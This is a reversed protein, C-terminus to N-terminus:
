PDFGPPPFGPQPFGPQPFRPMGAQNGAIVTLGKVIETALDTAAMDVEAPAYTRPLQIDEAAVPPDEIKVRIQVKAAVRYRGDRQQEFSYTIDFHPNAADEPVEVFILLQEGVPPPSPNIVVDAPIIIPRSLPTLAQGTRQAFGERLSKARGASGEEGGVPPKTETVRISVVAQDATRVSQLVQALGDKAPGAPPQQLAAVVPDYFTVLKESVAARHRTNRADMLYARLYRPEIPDHTVAHFIADDRLKVDVARMLFYCGMGALLIVVYPIVAPVARRAREPEEPVPDKWKRKVLGPDPNGDLDVPEDETRAVHAGLAGLDEPSLKSRTGGDPGFAFSIYNLFAVFTESADEGAIVVTRTRRGSFMLTVTTQQYKNENYAHKYKAGRFDDLSTVVVREGTAEYLNLADAYMWHGATRASRKAAWVRAAAFFMWGGLVLGATQLLAVRNPDNYIVDVWDTLTLLLTVVVVIPGCVCGAGPWPNNLPAYIGPMGKGERDRVALLYDRTEEDFEELLFANSM